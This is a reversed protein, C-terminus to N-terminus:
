GEHSDGGNRKNYEELTENTHVMVPCIWIALSILSFLVGFGYFVIDSLVYGARFCKLAIYLVFLSVLPKM